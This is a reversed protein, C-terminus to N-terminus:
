VTSAGAAVRLGLQSMREAHDLFRVLVAVGADVDVGSESSIKRRVAAEVEEKLIEFERRVADETWGLRARQAGHRESIFRQIESGDRMLDAEGGTQELNGLSQALNALFSSTQDELDADTRTDQNPVLPDARLRAVYARLISDIEGQVAEGIRALGRTVSGTGRVEALVAEELSGGPVSGTPLWLTFVSGEGPVSRATLDGAMLRALRRSITLGLGTGGRTRTHGRELQVFPEFVAALDEPVIGIGTDEVRVYTWMGASRLQAEPDPEATAGCTVRIRGGPQTFKVANSLLNVLVQRVRDVDGTYSTGPDEACPVEITIGRATAQPTVLSLAATIADMTRASEHAVDMRGAEVKALDLIDDILGILHQSSAQIRALQAQQAETVPGAIGMELLDAYGVVANIPTRLEHSMNALFDSKAQNSAEAEATRAVLAANMRTITDLARDREEEARIRKISQGIERGIAEVSALLAPDPAMAERHFFEIVGLFEDGGWVPFAFAGHLGVRAAVDSRPFNPDRTVDHVWAPAGSEWVRGPLGVGPAFRRQETAATFEPVPADPAHWIEAFALADAAPDVMWLVGVEWGLSAGIAYLIGPAARDLSHSEALARTVAHEAAVHREAARRETIDRVFATFLVRNGLRTPAVTLEVPFEGGDRRIAPIEIRRNLIPGEGTALYREVGKRHAERYRPPIITEALSKGLAEEASWGFTTEAHHNWELIVSETDTVMMADLASDFIGRLRGEAASLEDHSMELEAQMEELQIAQSQLEETHAEMEGALEEVVQRARVQETVDVAFTLLGEVQGRADRLPQTVFNLFHEEPQGDGDLDAVIRAENQVHTEGSAYLADRM